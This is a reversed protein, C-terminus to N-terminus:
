QGNYTTGQLSSCSEFNNELFATDLKYGSVGTFTTLTTTLPPVLITISGQVSVPIFIGKTISTNFFRTSQYCTLDVGDNDSYTPQNTVNKFFELPYPPAEGYLPQLTTLVQQKKDNSLLPAIETASFYIQRRDPPINQQNPSYNYACNSPDFSSDVITTGYVISAAESLLNLPTILITSEYTFSTYGDGLFDVFPFYIRAAMFSNIITLDYTIVDYDMICEIVVPYTESWDSGNLLETYASKLITKNGHSRIIEQATALPIPIVIITGNTTGTISGENQSAIPNAQNTCDSQSLCICCSLCLLVIYM